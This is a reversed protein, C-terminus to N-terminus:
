TIAQERGGAREAAYSTWTGGAYEAWRTAAGISIGTLSAFVTPPTTSALHLMATNRSTRTTIGLQNMRRMLSSPHLHHGATKGTFLWRRDALTQAAGFPKDAPLATILEDLPPALLLPEPGLRLYTGRDTSTVDATTLAVIKTVPQAYLLVLCAAARDEATAADHDHLLWRVAAWHQDQDVRGGPGPPSTPEPLAIAPLHGNNKLWRLFRIRHDRREALWADTDAQTCDDLGHGRRNLHELFRQAARIEQRCRDAVTATLHGHRDTKARAIVHWRAYRTLVHRHASGIVDVGARDEVLAPEVGLQPSLQSSRAVDWATASPRLRLACSLTILVRM